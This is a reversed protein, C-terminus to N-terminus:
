EKGMSYPIFVHTGVECRRNAEVRAARERRIEKVARAENETAGRLLAGTEEYVASLKVCMLLHSFSPMLSFFPIRYVQQTCKNLLGRTLRLGSGLTHMHQSLAAAELEGFPLKVGEERSGTVDDDVLKSATEESEKQEVVPSEDCDSTLIPHSQQIQIAPPDSRVLSKAAAAVSM